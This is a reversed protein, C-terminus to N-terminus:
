PPLIPILSLDFGSLYLTSYDADHSTVMGSVIAEVGYKVALNNALGRSLM